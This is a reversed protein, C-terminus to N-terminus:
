PQLELFILAPDIVPPDVTYDAVFSDTGDVRVRLPYIGPGRGRVDFTVQTTTAPSDPLARAAYELDGCLLSVRQQAWVPPSITIQLQVNGDADLHVPSAPAGVIRPAIALALVNTTRVDGISPKCQGGVAYLGAPWIGPQDPLAVTFGNINASTVLPPALTITTLRHVFLADIEVGDLDHGSFVVTDGALGGPTYPVRAAPQAATTSLLSFSDLGPVAPVLQADVQPGQNDKGRRLVPM